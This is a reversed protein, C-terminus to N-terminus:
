EPGDDGDEAAAEAARDREVEAEIREAYGGARDFDAASCPLLGYWADEFCIVLEGFSTTAAPHHRGVWRQVQTNTRLPAEPMELHKLLGLYRYRVASRHDGKAAAEAALRNLGGASMLEPSDGNVANELQQRRRWAQLAWVLRVLGYAAIVLVLLVALVGPWSAPGLGMSSRDLLEGIWKMFKSGLGEQPVKGGGDTRYEDQTLIRRLESRTAQSDALHPVHNVVAAAEPAAPEATEIVAGGALQDQPPLGTLEQAGAPGALM